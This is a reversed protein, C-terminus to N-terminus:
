FKKTSRSINKYSSVTRTQQSSWKQLSFKRLLANRVKSDLLSGFILIFFGQLANLITFVMNIGINKPAVVTGIGFGWTLGLLPTLIGISRAVVKLTNREDSKPNDGVTRRLLMFIVVCLTILNFAIIILAPIVFALLAMSNEWSLWCANSRKYQDKPATVAITVVAIILPCGYGLSFAIAMMHSKPIDKFVMVIRFLLLLALSLMWFFLSLYFFHTFFTVASCAPISKDIAAGIIFWTDAMLLSFAINIISIHRIYSTKNKTVYHWVIGEIILCLILSAMSIALGVYTINDLVPSSFDTEPSMLVSFTTLHECVCVISNGLSQAKCGSADWGGNNNFLSFNWFACLPDVWSEQSKQFTLSINYINGNTVTTTMIISNVSSNSSSRNPLIQSLTLYAISVIAASHPLQVLAPEPIIIDGATPFKQFTESYSKNNVINARLDINQSSFNFSSNTSLSRSFIEVSQLLSSSKTESTNQNLSNWSTFSEQSILIDVTGFFGQLVNPSITKNISAVSITSLIDVLTSITAPSQTINSKLSSATSNVKEVFQNLLSTSINGSKLDQSSILLDQVKSLICSDTVTEWIGDNCKKIIVGNQGPPCDFQKTLNSPASNINCLDSPLLKQCYPVSSHQLRICSCVNSGPCSEYSHCQDATWSYGDECSCQMSSGESTCVTTVATDEIEVRGASTNLVLPNNTLNDLFAKIQTLMDM